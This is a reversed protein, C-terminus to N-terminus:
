IEESLNADRQKALQEAVWRETDKKTVFAYIIATSVAIIFMVGMIILVTISSM